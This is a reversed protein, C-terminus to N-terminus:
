QEEEEDEEDDIEIPTYQFGVPERTEEQEEPFNQEIQKKIAYIKKAIKCSNLEVYNSFMTVLDDLVPLGVLAFLLGGVFKKM